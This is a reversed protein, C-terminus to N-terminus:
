SVYVGHICTGGKTPSKPRLEEIEDTTGMFKSEKFYSAYLEADFKTETQNKSEHITLWGDLPKEIRQGEFQIFLRKMGLCLREMVRFIELPLDPQADNHSTVIVDTDINSHIFHTDTSRKITGKIGM